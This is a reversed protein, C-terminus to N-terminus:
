GWLTAPVPIQAEPHLYKADLLLFEEELDRGAGWESCEGEGKGEGPWPSASFFEKEILLPMPLETWFKHGRINGGEDGFPNSPFGGPLNEERRQSVM